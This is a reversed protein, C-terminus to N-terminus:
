STPTHSSNQVKEFHIYMTHHETKHQKRKVTKM